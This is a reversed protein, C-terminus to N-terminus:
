TVIIDPSPLPVKASAKGGKIGNLPIFTYSRRVTTLLQSATEFHDVVVNYLRGGACIELATGAEVHQENITFLQAVLGKVKTRDFNPVPDAYSFDLNRVSRRIVDAKENIEAIGRQLRNQEQKMAEERGPDIGLQALTTQLKEAQTKLSDLESILAANDKEAKRARPEDEKIRSTFHAIKLSAQEQETAAASARNRADQLQGQYGGEHGEKSAVGTQLTQLLEENRELAQTQKQVDANATEYQKQLRAHHTTKEELQATLQQVATEHQKRGSEDEDMGSKKLELVTTLRVAEHSHKKVAEDLAAYRGGKKLEKDRATTIKDMDERLFNIEQGLKDANQKYHEKLRRKDALDKESNQLREQYRCYKYAVVLRTLHEVENQAQQFDLFARKEQRLKELKPNIEEQLQAQLEQVRMEKRTMTRLAKERKEEFMRTGAAEELMGLVEEKKMNLVKTIRGQMILFNPNNINLKVSQFLDSIFHQTATHGNVLYKNKGDLLIRRTM